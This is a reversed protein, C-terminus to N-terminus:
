ICDGHRKQMQQHLDKRVKLCQYPKEETHSRIHQTLGNQQKYAKDCYGGM